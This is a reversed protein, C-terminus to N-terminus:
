FKSSQYVFLTSPKSTIFRDSRIKSRHFLNLLPVPVELKNINFMVNLCTHKYLNHVTLLSNKKFLPKTHEKQYFESWLKQKDISRARACTKFKDYIHLRWTCCSTNDITLIMDYNCWLDARFVFIEKFCDLKLM